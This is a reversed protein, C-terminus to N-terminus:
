RISGRLHRVDSGGTGVVRAVIFLWVRLTVRVTESAIRAAITEDAVAGVTRRAAFSIVGVHALLVIMVQRGM